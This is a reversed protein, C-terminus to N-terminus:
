KSNSPLMILDLYDNGFVKRALEQIKKGDLTNYINTSYEPLPTYIGNNIYNKVRDVIYSNNKMREADEKLFNLRTKEIEDATVGNEKLNKLEDLM